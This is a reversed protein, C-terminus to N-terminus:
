DERQQASGPESGADHMLLVHNLSVDHAKCRQSWDSRLAAEAGIVVKPATLQYSGKSGSLCLSTPKPLFCMVCQSHSNGLGNKTVLLTSKQM